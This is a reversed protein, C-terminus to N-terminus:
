RFHEPNALNVLNALNLLSHDLHVVASVPRTPVHGRGAAAGLASVAPPAIVDLM